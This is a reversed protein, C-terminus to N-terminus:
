NVARALRADRRQEDASSARPAHPLQGAARLHCEQGSGGHIDARAHSEHALVDPEIGRGAVGAPSVRSDEHAHILAIESIM